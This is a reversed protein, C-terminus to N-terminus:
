ASRINWLGGPHGDSYRECCGENVIIVSPVTFRPPTPNIENSMRSEVEGVSMSAWFPTTHGTMRASVNEVLIEKIDFLKEITTGLIHLDIHILTDQNVNFAWTENQQVKNILVLSVQTGVLTALRQHIDM